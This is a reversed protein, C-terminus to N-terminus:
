GLAVRQPTSAPATVLEGRLLRNFLVGVERSRVDWTCNQVFSQRLAKQEPTDQTLAEEV